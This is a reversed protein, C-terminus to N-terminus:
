HCKQLIKKTARELKKMELALQKALENRGREDMEFPSNELHYYVSMRKSGRTTGLPDEWKIDESSVGLIQAIEEIHEMLCKQIRENEKPSPKGIYIGVAFKDEWIRWEYQVNSVGSGFVMRYQPRPRLNSKGYEKLVKNWLSLYTEQRPGLREVASRSIKRWQNPMVVIDFDIAYPSNGIKVAKVEFGFFGVDQGTNENLWNLAQKHEDSFKEAIWVIIRADVGSAYTLIKGLHDHNTKGFQNEIIVMAGSNTDRALIDAFYSGIQYEREIDELEVGIKEELLEINEVLWDSFEEERSFVKKIGVTKLKAIEVM